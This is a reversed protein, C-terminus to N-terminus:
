LFFSIVPKIHPSVAESMEAQKYKFFFKASDVCKECMKLLPRM